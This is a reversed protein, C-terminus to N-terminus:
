VGLVSLALWHKNKAAFHEKQCKLVYFKYFKRFWEIMGVLFGTAKRHLIFKRGFLSLKSNKIISM